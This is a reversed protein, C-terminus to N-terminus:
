PNGGNFVISINRREGEYMEWLFVRAKGDHCPNVRVNATNPSISGENLAEVIIYNAGPKLKVVYDRYASQLSLEEDLVEKGLMIKASDGDVKGHDKFGIIVNEIGVECMGIAAGMPINAKELEEQIEEKEKQIKLNEELIKLNEEQVKQIKEELEQQRQQCDESSSKAKMEAQMTILFLILIAGLASCIVDLM